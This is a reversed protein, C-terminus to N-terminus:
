LELLLASNIKIAIWIFCIAMYCFLYIRLIISGITQVFLPYRLQIINKMQLFTCHLLKKPLKRTLFGVFAQQKSICAPFTLPGQQSGKSNWTMIFRTLNYSWIVVHMLFAHMRIFLPWTCLVTMMIAIKLNAMDDGCTQM